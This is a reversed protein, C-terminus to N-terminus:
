VEINIFDLIKFEFAWFMQSKSSIGISSWPPEISQVELGHFWYTWSFGILQRYFLRYLSAIVNQDITIMVLASWRADNFKQAVLGFVLKFRKFTPIPGIHIM